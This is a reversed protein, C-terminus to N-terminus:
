HKHNRFLITLISKINTTIKKCKLICQLLKPFFKGSYISEIEIKEIKKKRYGM